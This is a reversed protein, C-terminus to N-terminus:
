PANWPTRRPGLACSWEPARGARGPRDRGARERDPEPAGAAAIRPRRRDAAALPYLEAHLTVRRRNADPAVLQLVDSAVGNVDTPRLELPRKRVLTRLRDVIAAADGSSAHIDGLLDRLETIDLEGAPQSALHLGADANAQISTLPQQIEHVISAALEGVLALRAAHALELRATALEKEAQKRETVDRCTFLVTGGQISVRKLHILVVRRAGSRSIVEREVNPIEGRATLEAPDFLNGGLLAEITGMAQVEDPVYGFIVDVNPCIYTFAGRDDVMFVADSISSLTARHLEESERLAEYASGGATPRVM